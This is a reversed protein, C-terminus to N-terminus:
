IYGRLHSKFSDYLHHNLPTLAQANLDMHLLHQLSSRSMSNQSSLVLLRSLDLVGPPINKFKKSGSSEGTLKKRKSFLRKFIIKLIFVLIQFSYFTTEVVQKHIQFKALFAFRNKLSTFVM